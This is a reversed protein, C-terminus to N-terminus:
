FYTVRISIVFGRWDHWSILTVPLQFEFAVFNMQKKIKLKNLLVSVKINMKFVCFSKFRLTNSNRGYIKSILFHILYVILMCDCM